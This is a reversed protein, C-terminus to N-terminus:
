FYEKAGATALACRRRRKPPPPQTTRSLEFREIEDLYIRYRPRGRPDVALNIARLQGSRILQLVKDPHVGWKKALAPPTVTEVQIM